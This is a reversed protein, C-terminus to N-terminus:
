SPEDSLQSFLWRKIFRWERKITDTSLDLATATEQITLGAFFRLNVIGGKRPDDAELRTLADHLPLIDISRKQGDDSVDDITVRQHNGGHKLSAKSRAHEVLIDRMTRAATAIFPGQANWTPDAKGLLRLYVEHVLATPQLSQGPPLKALRSKALKRLEAYVLPIWADADEHGKLHGQFGQDGFESNRPDAM